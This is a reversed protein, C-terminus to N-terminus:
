SEIDNTSAKLNPFRVVKAARWDVYETSDEQSWFEREEEENKFTPVTKLARKSEPM